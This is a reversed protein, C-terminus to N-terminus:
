GESVTIDSSGTSGFGETSVIQYTANTAPDFHLGLATYKDYHNKTTVTGSTRKSRRISWYQVYTSSRHVVYIDYTGGDSDLTGVRQGGSGPNYPGFNELIYTEGRTSWTYVALYGNSGPNFTGSFNITRGTATKWGKGATFDGVNSWKVSYEGAAGNTYTVSGKGDSWFQWFYGHDTGQGNPTSREVLEGPSRAEAPLASAGVVAAAAVLLATFSVM